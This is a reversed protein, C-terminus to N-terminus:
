FEVPRSASVVGAFGSVGDLSGTKATVKGVLATNLFQDVLTGSQGAVPLGALLTDLGSRSRLALVAVLTTCTDRNGRDLGSGDVLTVHEVPVGLQGLTALVAATGAATTGAKSVRVGLEKVLLEATLNDSSRLMSAIVDKLPSSKASAITV